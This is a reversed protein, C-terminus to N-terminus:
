AAVVKPLGTGGSVETGEVYGKIVGFANVVWCEDIGMCYYLMWLMDDFAVRGDRLLAELIKVKTTVDPQVEPVRYPAIRSDYERLKMELRQRLIHNEPLTIV